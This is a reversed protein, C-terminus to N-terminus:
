VGDREFIHTDDWTAGRREDALLSCYEIAPAQGAAGRSGAVSEAEFSVRSHARLTEPSWVNAGIGNQSPLNDALPFVTEFLAPYLGAYGRLQPIALV